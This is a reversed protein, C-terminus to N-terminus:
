GIQRSPDVEIRARIKKGSTHTHCSPTGSVRTPGTPSMQLDDPAAPQAAVARPFDDVVPPTLVVLHSWGPQRRYGAAVAASLFLRDNPELILLRFHRAALLGEIGGGRLLGRRVAPAHFYPYDDFVYSPFPLDWGLGWLAPQCLVAGDQRVALRRAQELEAGRAADTALNVTGLRGPRILRAADLGTAGLAVAALAIGAMARRPVAQAATEILYRAQIVALFAVVVWLEFFYNLESGNRCCTIAGGILGTWWCAKLASAEDPRVWSLHSLIPLTAVAAALPFAGKVLLSCSLRALNRLDFSSLSTAFFANYRYVPGLLAAFVIGTTMAPLLLAVGLRIRGRALSSVLLGVLIFVTSQKFSWAAALCLGGVLGATWERRPGIGLVAAIALACFAAAGIDPRTTLLWWGPATGLGVCVAALVMALATPGPATSPSRKRLAILAYALLGTMGVCALALTLLRFSTITRATNGAVLSGLAAYSRYFGANYLTSPYCPPIRPDEYLVLGRQVKLINYISIPEGGSTALTAASESVVSGFRVSLVLLATLAPLAFTAVVMMVRLRPRWNGPLSM